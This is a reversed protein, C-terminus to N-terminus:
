ILKQLRVSLLFAASGAAALVIADILASQAIQRHMDRLDSELWVQGLPQGDLTVTRFAILRGGEFATGDGAPRPFDFEGDQDARLYRALIAGSGTYLAAAVVDPKAMLSRLLAEAAGADNFRLVATSNQALIDAALDIESRASDHKAIIGRTLQLGGSMLLAATVTTMTIACLKRKLSLHTLHRNLCFRM